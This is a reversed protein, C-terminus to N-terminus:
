GLGICETCINVAKTLVDATGGALLGGILAAIGLLLLVARAIRIATDARDVPVEDVANRKPLTRLLAIERQYSKENGYVVFVAYGFPVLLCPILVIMARIMSTNIDSSDYHTGNLAYVLFVIGAACVLAARIAARQRRRQQEKAIAACTADDGNSLDAKATLRSLLLETNRHPERPKNSLPSLWEWLFGGITLVACLLVPVAISQFTDAVAQRSYPQDGSAYITLCGAALCIGAVLISISLVIGYVRHCRRQLDTTM